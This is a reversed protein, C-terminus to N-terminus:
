VSLMSAAAPPRESSRRLRHLKHLRNYGREERPHMQSAARPDPQEQSGVTPYQGRTGGPKRIDALCRFMGSTQVYRTLCCVDFM